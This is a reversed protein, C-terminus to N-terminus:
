SAPPVSVTVAGSQTGAYLIDGLGSRVMGCVTLGTAIVAGVYPIRLM